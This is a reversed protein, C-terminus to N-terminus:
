EAAQMAATQAKLENLARRYEIPMVKRFKPYWISWEALIKAAV